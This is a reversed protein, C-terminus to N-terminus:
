KKRVVPLGASFALRGQRYGLEFTPNRLSKDLYLTHVGSYGYYWGDLYEKIRRFREELFFMDLKYDSKKYEPCALDHCNADKAGCFACILPPEQQDSM